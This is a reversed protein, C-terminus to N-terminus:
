PKPRPKLAWPSLNSPKSPPPPMLNAHAERTSTDTLIFSQSALSQSAFPYSEINPDM